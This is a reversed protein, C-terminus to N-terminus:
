ASSPCPRCYVMESDPNMFSVATSVNSTVHIVVDSSALLMSDTLIEWAMDSSWKSPASAVRHQVQFGEELKREPPLTAYESNEEATLRRMGPVFKVKDGFEKQFEHIVSEQDTALFVGWDDSSEQINRRKVASRIERIYSEFTPIISGPQELAHSAHRVHAGIMLRGDFISKKIGDIKSQLEPVFHIHERFVRNYQARWRGFWTSRYLEFANVYTLLPEKDENFINNVKKSHGYLFDVDNLLDESLGFPPMFIKSWVNGDEPRGYCFSTMSSINRGSMIRGIDWDPLVLRAKDDHLGWVLHSLYANFVSFFGGDHGLAVRRSPEKFRSVFPGIRNEILGSLVPNMKVYNDNRRFEWERPNMISFYSAKLGFYSFESAKRKRDGSTCRASETHAFAHADILKEALVEVDVQYQSGYYQGDIEPYLAPIRASAPVLTVGPTGSLDLHGGVASLVLSKGLALAERPGIGYGEGASASVYVDISELFDDKGKNDLNECILKVNKLRLNEAFRCLEEFHCGVNYNSRIVLEADSNNGFAIAFAEILQRHGKRPHFASLCGFRTFDHPARRFPTVLLTGLDLALPLVQIPITAGSRELVAVLGQSPVLVGDFRSNLSLVWSEPLCDSDFVVFALKLDSKPVLDLRRDLSSNIFVDVFITAAVSGGQFIPISEGSPLTICKKGRFEPETPLICVSYARSLLSLFALSHQGIGGDFRCRGIICVDYSTFNSM